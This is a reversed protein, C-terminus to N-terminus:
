GFVRVPMQPRGLLAPDALVPRARMVSLAHSLARGPQAAIEARKVPDALLADLADLDLRAAWRRLVRNLKENELIGYGLDPASFQSLLSPAVGPLKVIRWYAATREAESWPHGDPAIAIVCGRGSRHRDVYPDGTLPKDVTRVLLEAM